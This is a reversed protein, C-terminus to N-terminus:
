VPYREFAFFCGDSQAFVAASAVNECLRLPQEIHKNPEPAAALLALERASLKVM